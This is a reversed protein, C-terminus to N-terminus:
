EGSMRTGDEALRVAVCITTVAFNFPLVWFWKTQLRVSLWKALSALHNILNILKVLQLIPTAFKHFFEVLKDKNKSLQANTM